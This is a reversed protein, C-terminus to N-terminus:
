NSQVAGGVVRFLEKLLLQMQRFQILEPPGRRFVLSALFVGANLRIGESVCLRRFSKEVSRVNRAYHTLIWNCTSMVTFLCLTLM